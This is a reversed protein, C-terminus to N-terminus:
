PAKVLDVRPMLGFKEAYAQQLLLSIGSVLAASASTGEGGYAVLEPKVRGDYAPGRSSLGALQGDALIEGVSLTNKSMKFQATLNAFGLIGTYAGSPSSQNGANGASFIHLLSPNEWVQRDYAETELGYYNEIGVGYSHNQVFIGRGSLSAVPDPMLNSFSATYLVVQRALGRGLPSSNGGGGILGAMDSAHNTFNDPFNDLDGVRGRFDLDNKDFAQEKVSAKLNQGELHPFAAQLASVRNLRFGTQDNEGEEYAPRPGLDIFDVFDCLALKQLQQNQSIKVLWLFPYDPVPSLSLSPFYSIRWHEFAAKEKIHM